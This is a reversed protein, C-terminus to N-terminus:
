CQSAEGEGEARETEDSVPTGREEAEENEVSVPGVLRLRM